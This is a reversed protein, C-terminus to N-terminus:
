SKDTMAEHLSKQMESVSPFKQVAITGFQREYATVVTQMQAAVLKFFQPSMRVECQDEAVVRGISREMLRGFTLVCDVPTLGARMTNAYYFRMDPGIEPLAVGAESGTLITPKPDNTM